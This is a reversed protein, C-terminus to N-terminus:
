KASADTTSVITCAGAHFDHDPVHNIGYKTNSLENLKNFDEPMKLDLDHVERFFRELGAPYVFLLQEGTVKAINKFAHMHGKPMYLTAGPGAQRCMGDMFFQFTGSKVLYVEDERTHIHPPPGGNAPVHIDLLASSGGTDAGSQLITVRGGMFDFSKLAKPAEPQQASAVVVCAMLVTGRAALGILTKM